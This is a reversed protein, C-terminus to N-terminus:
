TFDAVHDRAWAMATFVDTPGFVIRTGYDYAFSVTWGPGNDALIFVDQWM